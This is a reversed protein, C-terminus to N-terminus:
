DGNALALFAATMFKEMVKDHTTLISDNFSAVQKGAAEILFEEAYFTHGTKQTAKQLAGLSCWCVADPSHGKVPTGDSDKAFANKTWKDPTAIVDMAKLLVKSTKM